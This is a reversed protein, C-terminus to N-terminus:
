QASAGTVPLAKAIQKVSRAPVPFHLTMGCEALELATVYSGDSTTEVVIQNSDSGKSPDANPVLLMFGTRTGSLKSLTLVPTTEYPDYSFSYEGAPVVANAWRVEHTLTFKGHAPEEAAAISPALNMAAAALIAVHVFKRITTM